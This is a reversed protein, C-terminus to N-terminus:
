GQINQQQPANKLKDLVLQKPGDMYVGENTLVIIRNVVNLLVPKHTVVVLTQDSAMKNFLMQIIQKETAEDMSATPEDLLWVKKNAILIRTIAIHQKQGGSVTEGGEPIPTDLGEPLSNILNILGTEKAADIIEDDSVGVLGFVLNDRLTGSILKTNQPLYAINTNLTDRSIHQMDINSLYVGGSTPKYLGNLLKLLTSKGCGIVGLIAVKEGQQISLNKINLISNKEMYEFTINNCLISANTINPSLARDINENDISLRYINDLDKISMKAKGWQVFLGPLQGVPALVRGSLITMAILAGMTITGETSVIYAGLAVICVYSIQQFFATLYNATETLHRITVDDDIASHTLDSWKNTLSWSAGSSKIHESNEIIEVLLGMKKHSAMSSQQSAQDIRKRFSFGVSIAIVLFLFVVAGIKWGGIMMIVFLFIFTFPFDIMLYLAITTIFSRVSAYSQLQGSLTGVSKPMKDGRIQFFRSIIEHSYILDMRKSAFDLITSRSLKILMELLIATFVGISLGILTSLGGTPIVRDYVQMSYLSTALALINMAFTAIAAFSILKKEKYAVEKFIETASKKKNANEKIQLRAFFSGNPINEFYEEGNRTSAKYRGDALLEYVLAVGINPIFSICPLFEKELTTKFDLSVFGNKEFLDGYFTLLNTADISQLKEILDHLEGSSLRSNLFSSAMSSKIVWLLDSKADDLKDYIM